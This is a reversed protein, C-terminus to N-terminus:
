ETRLAQVPDMRSARWAPAVCALAAVLVLLAAVGAFVAPDMPQTEYLMSRIFRVTVASAALGFGLGLLAPWMGDLLVKRMLQGRMAGLAIRIGIESTRQTVLYALVGYLGAAALVLAIVAFALVLMSDFQSNVTSKNISQQLTLVQSVPLDPDMNGIVKQVPMALSEVNQPSQIVITAISFDNGYIPWYLM